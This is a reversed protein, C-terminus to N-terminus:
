QRRTLRKLIGTWEECRRKEASIGLGTDRDRARFRLRFVGVPYGGGQRSAIFRFRRSNIFSSHHDDEYEYERVYEYEYEDSNPYFDFFRKRVGLAFAATHVEKQIYPEGERAHRDHIYLTYQLEAEANKVPDSDWVTLV